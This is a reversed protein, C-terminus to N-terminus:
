VRGILVPFIFAEEILLLKSITARVFYKECEVDDECNNPGDLYFCFIQVHIYLAAAIPLVILLRAPNPHPAYM